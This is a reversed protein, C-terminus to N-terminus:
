LSKWKIHDSIVYFRNGIIMNIHRLKKKSNKEYWQLVVGLTNEDFIQWYHFTKMMVIIVCISIDQWDILFAIKYIKRKVYSVMVYFLGEM